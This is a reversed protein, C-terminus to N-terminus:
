PCGNAERLISRCKLASTADGRAGDQVRKAFLSATSSNLRPRRPRLSASADWQDLRLFGSYRGNEIHGSVRLRGIILEMRSDTVRVRATLRGRRKDRVLAQLRGNRSTVHFVGRYLPARGTVRYKWTGLALARSAATDTASRSSSCGPTLVAVLLPLLLALRPVPVGPM